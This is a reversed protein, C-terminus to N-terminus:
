LEVALAGADIKAFDLVDNVIALLSASSGDIISLYERQDDSMPTDKMLTTMGMIGNLPTRLEHSMNALFQDKARSAEEARDKAETLQANLATLTATMENFAVAMTAAESSGRVPVRRHWEGRTIERAAEVVDRLPRAARR